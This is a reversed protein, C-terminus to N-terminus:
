RQELVSLEAAEGKLLCYIFPSGTGRLHWVVLPQRFTPLSGIMQGDQFLPGCFQFVSSGPLLFRRRVVAGICPGFSNPHAVVSGAVSKVLMPPILCM